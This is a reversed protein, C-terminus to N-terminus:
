RLLPASPEDPVGIEALKFFATFAFGFILHALFADLEAMQLTGGLDRVLVFNATYLLLTTFGAAVLTWGNRSRVLTLSFIAGYALALVLHWAFALLPPLLATRGMVLAHSGIAPLGGTFLATVVAAAFSARRVGRCAPLTALSKLDSTKVGREDSDHEGERPYSQGSGGM